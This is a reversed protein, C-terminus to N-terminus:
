QPGTRVFCLGETRTSTLMTSSRREVDFKDNGERHISLYAMTLDREGLYGSILAYAFAYAYEYGHRTTRFLVQM